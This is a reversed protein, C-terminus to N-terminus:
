QTAVFMNLSVVSAAKDISQQQKRWLTASNQHRTFRVPQDLYGSSHVVGIVDDSRHEGDLWDSEDIASPRHRNAAGVTV